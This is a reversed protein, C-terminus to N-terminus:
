PGDGTKGGHREETHIVCSIRLGLRENLLAELRHTMAHVDRLRMDPDCQVHFDAYVMDGSRRSRIKHVGLVDPDALVIERIREPDVAIHDTLEEAAARFIDHAARFILLAILASLAPDVWAPAHAYRILAVSALVGCTVWVDSLTHRADSRLIPSALRRGERDELLAVLVNFGLTAAIVATEPGSPVRFDPALFNRVSRDLISVGLYALMAVIALSALTEYRSHGYAHDADVPRSAMRVGIIGVVNSFGDTLSHFGDAMVSQLGTAVGVAVKAASVLLNCLLVIWLVRAARGGKAAMDTDMDGDGEWEIDREDSIGDPM